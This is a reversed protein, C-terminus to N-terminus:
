IFIVSALHFSVKGICENRGIRDKDMVIVELTYDKLKEMPIYFEFQENFEPNLTNKKVATKKKETRQGRHHLWIKTYPDKLKYNSVISFIPSPIFHLPHMKIGSSGNLDMARLNSGKIIGLVLRGELPVYM